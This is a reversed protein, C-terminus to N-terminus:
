SLNLINLDKLTVILLFSILVFFGISNALQEFRPNNPKGRIKEILLFAVRGGDLAPIPFINFVALNLSLAATFQILYDFGMKTIEGTMQAIKVPGGVQGWSFSGTILYYFGIFINEIQIFTTKFGEWLAYIPSYKLKAVTMMTIGVSGEGEKPNAISSVSIKKVEGQRLVEFSFDKGRNVKIYGQVDETSTFKKGDLSVIIDNSKLSANEAPSNKGVEVITAKQDVIQAYKPLTVTDDIGIPLGYMFGASILFWALLINMIVGAILTVLRQIFTKEIFSGEEPKLDPDNNEGYIKVFGGLPIFNFSYLTTEESVKQTHSLIFKYKGNVKQVGFFRPPFGFGFELVKMGSLKAALFHGLEHAIVVVWLIVFFILITTLM